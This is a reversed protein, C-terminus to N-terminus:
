PTYILVLFVAHTTCSFVHVCSLFVTLFNKQESTKIQGLEPRARRADLVRTAAVKCWSGGEAGEAPRLVTLSLLVLEVVM